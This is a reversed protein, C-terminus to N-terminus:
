LILLSSSRYKDRYYTGRCQPEYGHARIRQAVPGVEDGDSRNWLWPDLVNEVVEIMSTIQILYQLQPWQKNLSGTEKAIRRRLWSLFSKLIHGLVEHSPNEQNCTYH